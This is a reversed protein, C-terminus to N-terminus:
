TLAIALRVWGIRAGALRQRLWADVGLVRGAGSAAFTFQPLTLLPWIWYWEGPVNFAQVAINVQWLFGVTAALRTLVGAVLALGLTLEVLFTLTGFLTLNPLVVERLLTAVVGFAPHEIEKRIFGDLWGFNKWPAKQLAMDIYLIGFAIRFIAVPWGPLVGRLHDVTAMVPEM